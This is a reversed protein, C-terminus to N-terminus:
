KQIHSTPHLSHRGFQDRRLALLKSRPCQLNTPLVCEAIPCPDHPQELRPCDISNKVLINVCRQKMSSRCQRRPSKECSHKKETDTRTRNSLGSLRAAKAPGEAGAPRQGCQQGAACTGASMSSFLGADGAHTKDRKFDGCTGFSNLFFDTPTIKIM